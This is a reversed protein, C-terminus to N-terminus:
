IFSIYVLSIAVTHVSGRGLQHEKKDKPDKPDKVDKMSKQEKQQEANM